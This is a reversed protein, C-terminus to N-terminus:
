STMEAPSCVNILRGDHCSLTHLVGAARGGLNIGPYGCSGRAKDQYTVRCVDLDQTIGWGVAVIGELSQVWEEACLRTLATCTSCNRLSREEHQFRLVPSPSHWRQMISRLRQMIRFSKTLGGLRCMSGVVCMFMFM